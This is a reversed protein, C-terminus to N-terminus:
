SMGKLLQNILSSLETQSVNVPLSFSTDTVSYRYMYVAYLTNLNNYLDM